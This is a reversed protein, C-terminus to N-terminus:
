GRVLAGAKGCKGAAFDYLLGRDACYRRMARAREADDSVANLAEKTRQEAEAEVITRTQARVQPDHFLLVYLAAIALGAGVGAGIKLADFLGFM